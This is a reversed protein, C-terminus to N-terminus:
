QANKTDQVGGLGLDQILQICLQRGIRITDDLIIILDCSIGNGERLLHSRLDMVIQGLLIQVELIQLVVGLGQRLKLHPQVAGYIQM